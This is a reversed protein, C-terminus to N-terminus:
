NRTLVEADVLPRPLELHPCREALALMYANKTRVNEILATESDTLLALGAAPGDLLGFREAFARTKRAFAVARATAVSASQYTTWELVARLDSICEAVAGERDDANPAQALRLQIGDIVAVVQALDNAGGPWQIWRKGAGTTNKRLGNAFASAKVLADTSKQEM